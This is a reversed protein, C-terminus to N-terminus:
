RKVGVVLYNDPLIKSKIKLGKCTVNFGLSSFLRRVQSLSYPLRYYRYLTKGRYRWPVLIEGVYDIKGLVRRVVNLIRYKVFRPQLLSWFTALIGGGVKLVRHVERLTNKLSEESPLHHLTAISIAYDITESRLPLNEIDAQILNLRHYKNKRLIRSKVVNLMKISIEVCIVEDAINNLLIYDVYQGPGCGLDILLKVRVRSLINLIARWPKVRSYAYSYAIADYIKMLEEKIYAQKVDKNMVDM